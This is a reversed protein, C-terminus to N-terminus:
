YILFSFLVRKRNLLIYIPNQFKDQVPEIQATLSVTVSYARVEQLVGNFRNSRRKNGSNESMKVNCSLCLIRENDSFILNIKCESCFLVSFSGLSEVQKQLECLYIIYKGVIYMCTHQRSLISNYIVFVQWISLECFYYM